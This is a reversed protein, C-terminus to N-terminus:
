KLEKSLIHFKASIYKRSMPVALGSCDKKEVKLKFVDNNREMYNKIYFENGVNKLYNISVEGYVYNDGKKIFAHVNINRYKKVDEFNDIGDEGLIDSLIIRDNQKKDMLEFKRVSIRLCNTIDGEYSEIPVYVFNHVDGYMLSYDLENKVEELNMEILTSVKLLEDATLSNRNLKGMFTKYNMELKEAVWVPTYGNEKIFKKIYEGISM